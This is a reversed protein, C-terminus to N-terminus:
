AQYIVVITAQIFGASDLTPTVTVVGTNVDWTWALGTLYRNGYVAEAIIVGQPRRKPASSGTPLDTGSGSTITASFVEALQGYKQTDYYNGNM